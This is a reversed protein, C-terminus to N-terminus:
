AVITFLQTASPKTTDCAVNSLRGNNNVLCVGKVNSPTLAYPVTLDAAVFPFLQSNTVQGPGGCSFLNVPDGAARRDNFNLCGQTLSVAYLHVSLSLEATALLPFRATTEGSTRLFDERAEFRNALTSLLTDNEAAEEQSPTATCVIRSDRPTGYEVKDPVFSPGEEDAPTVMPEDSGFKSEPAGQHLDPQSEHDILTVLTPPYCSLLFEQPLASKSWYMTLANFARYWTETISPHSMCIRPRAHFTVFFPNASSTVRPFDTYPASFRQPASEDELALFEIDTYDPIFIYEYEQASFEDLFSTRESIPARVNRDQLLRMAGLTEETPILFWSGNMGSRFPTEMSKRIYLVSREHTPDITQIELGWLYEMQRHLRVDRKPFLFRPTLESDIDEVSTALASLPVTAAM